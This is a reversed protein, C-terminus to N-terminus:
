KKKHNAKPAPTIGEPHSPVGGVPAESEGPPAIPHTPTGESPTGPVGEIPHSPEAGEITEPPPATEDTYGFLTRLMEADDGEAAIAAGGVHIMVTAQSFDLHSIREPNICQGTSLKIFDEPNM